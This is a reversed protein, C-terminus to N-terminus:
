ISYVSIGRLIQQIINLVVIIVGIQLCLPVVTTIWSLAVEGGHPPAFTRCCASTAHRVDTEPLLHPKLLAAAVFATVLRLLTMGLASVGTKHQVASEIPLNHCILAMVALIVVSRYDFGLTAIVAVTAYNNSLAATLFVLGSSGLSLDRDPQLATCDSRIDLRNCRPVRLGLNRTHHPHGDQHGMVATEGLQVCPAKPQM